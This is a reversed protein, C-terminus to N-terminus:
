SRTGTHWPIVVTVCLGGGDTAPMLRLHQGPGYLQALRARTNALGVGETSPAPALGPGDDTIKLQLESASRRAAITVTGPGVRRAIGHELANEVLPQLLLQPVLATRLEDPVDVVVTLRDSFRVRMIDLYRDLLALEEALPIEHIGNRVLTARLLEGLRNVMRDAAAVDRHMLTTVASLTNFLFHPQLQASLADLQAETLRAQLAQASHEQERLRRNFEFAQIVAIVAWFIILEILANGALLRAFTINTQGTILRNLPLFILYKLVVFVGSAAFLAAISRGWGRETVPFRRSLWIFPPIFLLCTYWDALRSLTIRVWPFTAANPPVTLAGQVVSLLALVTWFAWVAIAVQLSTWRPSPRTDPVTVM